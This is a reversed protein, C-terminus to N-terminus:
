GTRPGTKSTVGVEATSELFAADTCRWREAAVETSLHQCIGGSKSAVHCLHVFPQNEERKKTLLIVIRKLSVDSGTGGEFSAAAGTEHERGSRDEVSFQGSHVHVPLVLPTRVRCM